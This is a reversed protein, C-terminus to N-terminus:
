SAHAEKLKYYENYKKLAEQIEENYYIVDPFREYHLHPQIKIIELLFPINLLLYNGIKDPLHAPAKKSSFAALTISKENRMKESLHNYNYGNAKVAKLCYEYNTNLVDPMKFLYNSACNDVYFKALEENQKMVDPISNWSVSSELFCKKLYKSDEGLCKIKELQELSNQGTIKSYIYFSYDEDLIYRYPHLEKMGQKIARLTKSSGNVKYNGNRFNKIVEMWTDLVTDSYNADEVKFYYLPRISSDAVTMKLVNEKTVSLSRVYYFSM